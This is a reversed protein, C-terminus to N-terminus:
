NKTVVEDLNLVVNAVMTWAALQDLDLTEDRSAPGVSVLSKAKESDAQFMKLEDQYLALLEDVAAQTPQRGTCLRLMLRVRPEPETGGERIAREALARAAEVYQTDNLMLLAQLPTNTRERRVICAERSPADFTSMQPPPATRKIFTYLTRRHVKELDTDPVFRVTNSGSYGVAFWLGAPQPPKVSPGGLKEVLLGSVSLAQDRLMEADLRFRPGRSVLRNKPDQEVIEPTMRSSQQYANSMVITKMLGKVDWGSEIFEVALWDILQPHSPVEGQSGFDEATNVIGIGFLQAWFRNVAVRATLPNQPNVLWQALGLRNRPADEALPAFVAPTVRDVKDGKQDYEGRTLMFAERPEDRERWILSVALHTLVDTRLAYQQALERALETYAADANHYYYQRLQDLQVATLQELPLKLLGGIVGRFMVHIVESSELPRNYVHLEDVQAGVLPEGAGFRGLLFHGDGSDISRPVGRHALTDQKVNAPQRNGDVYMAVGAAKASGDYNVLLHHWNGPTIANEASAVQIANNGNDFILFFDAQGNEVKLAYGRGGKETKSFVTGKADQPLKVWIGASFRNNHELDFVDGLDVYADASLEVASGAPGPVAQPNGQTQGPSEASVANLVTNNELSDLSYQGILGEAPVAASAAEAAAPNRDQLWLQFVSEMGTRHKEQLTQLEAIRAETQKLITAQEPTPVTESPATDAHNGDLAPGDISNFFAFLSYFDHMTLPDFKHDHCRSCELTLGLFVTGMTTVRDVVNRVYVEEEISGGESTSVNCRCFGTAVRQDLTADPLLDGALQEITFQDYPMNANFARVVWDRYPWIERYNDLHLGHTDGYRAADLWFRAMHEGYHSSRLLRDVVQEYATPSEDALFADMEELTPPLGTLDFTIRRLLTEKDAPPSPKLGKADLKALIFSDVANRPWNSDSVAPLEPRLPPVFSWHQQWPAGQEIWRRILEIQEPKISKGSDAPPMLEDADTTVIRRLLESEEPKGPVVAITGSPLEGLASEQNDLRLEAERDSANPGHCTYCNDSLIPRIDQVYDVPELKSEDAFSTAALLLSVFSSTFLGTSATFTISSRIRRM